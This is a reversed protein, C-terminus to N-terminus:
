NTSILGVASTCHRMRRPSMCARPYVMLWHLGVFDLGSDAMIKKLKRRRAATIKGPTEALTFPAIEIGDYGATKVAACTKEFEWGEFVENCISQRIRYSM